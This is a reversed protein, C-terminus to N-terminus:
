PINLLYPVSCTWGLGLISPLWCLSHSSCALCMGHAEQFLCGQAAGQGKSSPAERQGEEWPFVLQPSPVSQAGSNCKLVWGVVPAGRMPLWHGWRMYRAEVGVAVGLGVEVWPPWGVEGEEVAWRLLGPHWGRHSSQTLVPLQGPRPWASFLGAPLRGPCQYSPSPALEWRTFPCLWGKAKLHQAFGWGGWIFRARRLWNKFSFICPRRQALWSTSDTGSSSRNKM